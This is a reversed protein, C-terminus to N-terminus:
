LKEIQELALKLMIQRRPSLRKYADHYKLWEVNEAEESITTKRICDKTYMIEPITNNEMKGIFYYTAYAKGNSGKYNEIFPTFEMVKIDDTLRTEERFERRACDIDPETHGNKKGKPFGWPTSKIHSTTTDLTEVIMHKVANYKNKAFEFGDKYVRCSKEVWLDAWLEEFVYNRIRSREESSMSSFLAPLQSPNDYIGRVFEIYEFNDRRQYLLFLPTNDQITYVILGYSTIPEAQRRKKRNYRGYM